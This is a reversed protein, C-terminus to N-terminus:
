YYNTDTTTTTTNTAAVFIVVPLVAEIEWVSAFVCNRRLVCECM